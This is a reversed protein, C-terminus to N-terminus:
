AKVAKGVTHCEPQRSHTPPRKPWGDPRNSCGCSFGCISHGTYKPGAEAAAYARLLNAAAREAFSRCDSM